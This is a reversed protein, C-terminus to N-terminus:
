GANSNSANNASASTGASTGAGTTESAGASAAQQEENKQKMKLQASPEAIADNRSIILHRLVGDSFRFTEDLKQMCDIPCEINLLLYYAEKMKNIPYALKKLGWSEQRHVVGAYEGVINRYSSFMEEVNEGIDPHVIIVLEYHRKEM